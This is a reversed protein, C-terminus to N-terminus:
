SGSGDIMLIVDVKAECQVVGYKNRETKTPNPCKFTNCRKYQLRQPKANAKPCKGAGVAPKKVGRSRHKLGGGCRKSCQSWKTWKKLKCPQDCSQTNCSDAMSTEECPVGGNKPETSIGRNRSKVGGGCKSSFASWSSWKRLECDIPCGQRNCPQMM